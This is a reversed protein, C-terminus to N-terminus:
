RSRRGAQVRVLIGGEDLRGPGRLSGDFFTGHISRQAGEKNASSERKRGKWKCSRRIKITLAFFPKMWIAHFSWELTVRSPAEHPVSPNGEPCGLDLSVFLNEYLFLPLFSPTPPSFLPLSSFLPSSLLLPSPRPSLKPSRSSTQSM